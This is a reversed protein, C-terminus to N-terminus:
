GRREITFQWVGPEVEVVRFRCPLRRLLEKLLRSTCSHDTEVVLTDGPALAALAEETRVLPEPCAEGLCDLRVTAM